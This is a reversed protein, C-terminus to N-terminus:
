YSYVTYKLGHKWSRKIEKKKKLQSIQAEMQLGYQMSINHSVTMTEISQRQGSFEPKDARGCIARSIDLNM